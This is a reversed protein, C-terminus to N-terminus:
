RWYPESYLYTAGEIAGPNDQAFVTWVVGDTVERRYSLPYLRLITARAHGERMERTTVYYFHRDCGDLLPEYLPRDTIVIADEGYCKLESHAPVIRTPFIGDTSRLDKGTTMDIATTMRYSRSSFLLYNVGLPSQIVGEQRTLTELEWHEVTKIGPHFTQLLCGEWWDDSLMDELFEQYRRATEWAMEGTVQRFPTINIPM